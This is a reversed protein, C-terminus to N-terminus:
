TFQDKRKFFPFGVGCKSNEEVIVFILVLFIWWEVHIDDDVKCFIKKLRISLVEGLRVLAYFGIVTFDAETKKAFCHFM